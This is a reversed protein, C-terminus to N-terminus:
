CPYHNIHEANQKKRKLLKSLISNVLKNDPKLRLAEKFYVISEDINCYVWLVGLALFYDFSKVIVDYKAEINLNLEKCPCNDEMMDSDLLFDWGEEMLRNLLEAAKEIKGVQTYCVVMKKLLGKNAKDEQVCEEFVALADKYKKAMFYQNGLMESM